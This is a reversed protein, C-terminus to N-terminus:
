KESTKNSKDIFNEFNLQGLYGGGISLSVNPDFELSFSNQENTLLSIFEICEPLICKYRSIVRVSNPKKLRLLENLLEAQYELIEDLLGSKRLATRIKKLISTPIPVLYLDFILTNHNRALFDPISQDDQYNSNMKRVHYVNLFSNKRSMEPNGVFISRLLSQPIEGLIVRLSADQEIRNAIINKNTQELEEVQKLLHEMIQKKTSEPNLNEEQLYATLQNNSEMVGIMRNLISVVKEKKMNLNNLTNKYKILDNEFYKM